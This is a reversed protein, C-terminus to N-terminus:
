CEKGVRREESRVKFKFATDGYCFIIRKDQHRKPIARMMAQFKKARAATYKLISVRTM